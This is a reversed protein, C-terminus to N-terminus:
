LFWWVLLGAVIVVGFIVLVSGYDPFMYPDVEEFWKKSM